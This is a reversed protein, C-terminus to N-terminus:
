ELARRVTETPPQGTGPAAEHIHLAQKYQSLAGTLDGLFWLVAGLNSRWSAIDPHDPGLAAESIRLAHEYETRAGRPDGLAWLVEGLNNRRM